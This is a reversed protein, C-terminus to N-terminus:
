TGKNSEFVCRPIKRKIFDPSRRGYRWWAWEETLERKIRSRRAYACTTAGRMVFEAVVACFRPTTEGKAPISHFMQRQKVQENADCAFEAGGAPSVAVTKRA